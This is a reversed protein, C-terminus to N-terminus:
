EGCIFFQALNLIAVTQGRLTRLAWNIISHGAVTPIIALGTICLLELRWSDALPSVGTTATLTLALLLCCLGGILYVPVVYVYINPLDKNKRGFALYAAYLLMSVFCVLDGYLYAKDVHFDAFGLVMIGALALFTGMWERRSLQERVLLYLLLPMAIPVMNVILTSNAAPTLRAGYIWSIFHLGLLLGPAFAYGACRSFSFGATTRWTRLAVPLLLLGALLLRYASLYVPDTASIKIFIVSTACAFIGSLLILYAVM